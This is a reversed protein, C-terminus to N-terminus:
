VLTRANRWRVRFRKTVADDKPCPMRASCQLNWRLLGVPGTGLRLHTETAVQRLDAPDPASVKHNALIEAHKMSLTYIPM